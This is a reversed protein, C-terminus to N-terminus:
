APERGSFVRALDTLRISLAEVEDLSLSALEVQSFTALRIPDRPLGPRSAEWQDSRLWQFGDPDSIDDQISCIEIALNTLNNWRMVDADIIEGSVRVCWLDPASGFIATEAVWFEYVPVDEANVM